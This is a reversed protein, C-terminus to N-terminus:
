AVAYRRRRRHMGRYITGAKGRCKPCFACHDKIYATLKDDVGAERRRWLALGTESPCKAVDYTSNLAIARSTGLAVVVGDNRNWHYLLRHSNDTEEPYSAGANIRKTCRRCPLEIHKEIWNAVAKSSRGKTFADLAQYSPCVWVLLKGM